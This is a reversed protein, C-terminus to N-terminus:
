NVNVGGTKLRILTVSCIADYGPYEMQLFITVDYRDVPFVTGPFYVRGGGGVCTYHPSGDGLEQLHKPVFMADFHFVDMDDPM